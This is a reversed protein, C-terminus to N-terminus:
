EEGRVRRMLRQFLSNRRAQEDGTRGQLVDRIQRNLRTKRDAIGYVWEEVGREPPRFLVKQWFTKPLTSVYQRVQVKRDEPKRHALGGARIGRAEAQAIREPNYHGDVLQVMTTNGLSLGEAGAGTIIIARNKGELYDNVAKQRTEETIGPIGKGAFVGFPIGRNKLGESLVDVGGHVLNTYLVVQGDPTKRLHEQADDLIKKMKPTKEAAEAPTMPLISNLSNSAQRARLIRTFIGKMHEDTDGEGAQIKAVIKPDIGRMSMRYLKIQEDSMPVPVRETVKQPKESADLDDVYHINGGVRSRLLAQRILNEEYTKGGFIGRELSPSRRIFAKRFQRQSGVPSAGTDSTLELLPVIEEPRNQVVSATLGMFRPVKARAARLVQYNRSGPNAARHVEDAILIDPRVADIFADPRRRFADYSVVAYETDPSVAQPTDLIVGKSDTFKQVGKDLFNNRLGAPTVVLARHAKQKGKLAEFAAISSVTKGTGTGHAALIGGHDSMAQVARIFDVQHPKLAVDKHLRNATVWTKGQTAEGGPGTGKSSPALRRWHGDAAEKVQLIQAVEDRFSRAAPSPPGETLRFPLAQGPPQMGPGLITKVVHRPADKKGVDGVVAFGVGPWEYYYTQGASLKKGRLAKVLALVQDSHLGTRERMRSGVHKSLQESLKEFWGM